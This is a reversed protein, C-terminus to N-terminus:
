AKESGFGVTLAGQTPFGGKGKNDLFTVYVDDRVVWQNGKKLHRFKHGLNSDNIVADLTYVAAKGQMNSQGALIFVKVTGNALVTNGFVIAFVLNIIFFGNFIFQHM